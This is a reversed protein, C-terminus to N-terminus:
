QIAILSPFIFIKTRIQQLIKIRERKKYFILVTILAAALNPSQLPSDGMLGFLHASFVM